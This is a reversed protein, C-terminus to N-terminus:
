LPESCNRLLYRCQDRSCESSRLLDNFLTTWDKTIPCRNMEWDKHRRHMCRVNTATPLSSFFSFDVHMSDMVEVSYFPFFRKTAQTLVNEKERMNIATLPKSYRYSIVGDCSIEDFMLWGFYDHILRCVIQFSVVAHGEWKVGQWHLEDKANEVM